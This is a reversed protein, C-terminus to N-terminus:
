IFIPFLFLLLYLDSPRLNFAFTLDQFVVDWDIYNGVVALMPAFNYLREHTAFFTSTHM